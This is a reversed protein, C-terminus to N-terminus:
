ETCQEAEAIVENVEQSADLYVIEETVKGNKVKCTLLKLSVMNMSALTPPWTLVLGINAGEPTEVTCLRGYHTPHLTVFMLDPVNM